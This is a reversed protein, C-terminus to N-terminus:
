SETGWTSLVQLLPSDSSGAFHKTHLQNSYFARRDCFGARRMSQIRTGRVFNEWYVNFSHKNISHM